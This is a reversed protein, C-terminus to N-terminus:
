DDFRMASPNPCRRRRVRRSTESSRAPLARAASIENQGHEPNTNKKVPLDLGGLVLAVLRTKFGAADRM